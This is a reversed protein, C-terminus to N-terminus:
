SEDVVLHRVPLNFRALAEDAAGEELWGADDEKRTCQLAIAELDGDSYPAPGGAVAAKVLRQTTLDAYRRNPATAHTYDDVALGFHGALDEGTREM